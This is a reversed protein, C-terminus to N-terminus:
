EDEDEDDFHLMKQGSAEEILRFSEKEDDKSNTPEQVDEEDSAETTSERVEAFRTPELEEVEAVRYNSIRKGKARISKEAIFEEADIEIPLRHEDEGGFVVKIRPYDEDTLLLISNTPEIAINERKTDPEISFRKIYTFDAEKDFYVLTWVKHQDYKEITDIDREFHLAESFDTIYSEGNSRIVLVKDEAKFEGLYEGRDDYNLRFIDWDFWVKRGGLTSVGQEKLTIKFVNGRTLINGKATRGKILIEAFDKEFVLKKKRANPQPRLVVKVVEAEGNPNASFYLVKSGEKGNTVDYERDRVISSVNFRKIFSTGKKGDRYVVNYITRKDGRIWRAVHIIDKGVFAKEAVKTILYKGNRLFVIVDDIDSIDCVFEDKKLSTGIFGGERDVYLKENKLVVKAAQIEEFSQIKTQRPFRDGCEKLLKEYWKITYGRVDTLLKEVRAMEKELNLIFQKSKEENFRLIRAMRIELLMKLDEDTVPRILDDLVDSLRARIHALAVKLDKAEEFEKDKYIRRTIFLEELSAKLHQEQFESLEIKLEERLYVMTRECGDKLVDSVTLFEPKDDRIVCCNPSLSVECETFAYLADITKDSSTGPALQIEINATAATKDDIKKIKISGKDNARMISDIITSTTRSFPIETIALTRADRKEILARVKIQGGREGDNYRSVDMLGGTNFDPYLQFPKGKLYLICAELLETINHPLIKSSLGVAIGEAGQTLLLPFKVPLAVPEVTASDYSPKYRTIKPSFLVERAFPTLRAEIYRPAAAGDGTLVNGWNGQCDILLHKQGLQVLADGISADGHPHLAMTQGVINAVKVLRDDQQSMTYLIRRQVPKLGDEIHPVARELIVYSAYSLFWNKYMGSLVYGSNDRSGDYLEGDSDPDTALGDSLIQERSQNNELDSSSRKNEKEEDKKM